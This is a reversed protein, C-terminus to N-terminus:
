QVDLALSVSHWSHFSDMIYRSMKAEVHFNM